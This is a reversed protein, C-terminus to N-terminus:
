ARKRELTGQLLILWHRYASDAQSALLGELDRVAELAEGYRDGELAVRLRLRLTAYQENLRETQRSLEGRMRTAGESDGAVEYCAHARQLLAAASIGDQAVFASREVKAQAAREDRQARKLASDAQTEVCRESEQGDFLGPPVVERTTLDEPKSAQYVRLGLAFLAVAAFLTIVPSRHRVEVTLFTLRRAGVFVEGGFPVRVRRHEKGEFTLTGKTGTPVEVCVGREGTIVEVFEAGFSSTDRFRIAADKGTGLTVRDGILEHREPNRGAVHIEVFIRV